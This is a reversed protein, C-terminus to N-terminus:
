FSRLWTKAEEGNTFLKVPFAGKNFGIFFNGLVKSIPGGVILALAKTHKIMITKKAFNRAERDTQSVNKIDALVLQCEDGKDALEMRANFIDESDKLVIKRDIKCFEVRYIEAEKWVKASELEKM